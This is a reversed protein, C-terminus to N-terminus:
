KARTSSKTIASRARPWPQNVPREISDSTAHAGGGQGRGQEDDEARERSAGVRRAVVGRAMGGLASVAAGRSAAALPVDGGAHDVHLQCAMRELAHGVKPHRLAEVVVLRHFHGEIWAREPMEGASGAVEVHHGRAVTPLEAGREFACGLRDVDLGGHHDGGGALERAFSAIAEAHTVVHNEVAICVASEAFAIGDVTALSFRTQVAGVVGGEGAGVCDLDDVIGAPIEEVLSREIGGVDGAEPLRRQHHHGM